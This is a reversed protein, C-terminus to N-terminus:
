RGGGILVPVSSFVGTGYGGELVVVTSGKMGVEGKYLPRIVKGTSTTLKNVYSSLPQFDCLHGEGRAQAEVYQRQLDLFQGDKITETQPGIPPAVRESLMQTMQKQLLNQRRMSNKADKFKGDESIGGKNQFFEVHSQGQQRRQMEASDRVAVYKGNPLEKFELGTEAPVYGQSGDPKRMELYFSGDGSRVYQMEGSTHLADMGALIEETRETRQQTM